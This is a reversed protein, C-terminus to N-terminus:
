KIVAAGAEDREFRLVQGAAAMGLIVPSHTACLVQATCLSSLSQFLLEVAAPHIGNEPEEILYIGELNPIYALLTLALLRLTGASVSWSPAEFGNAYKLVLYRHRDEPRERTAISELDALATRLHGVWAAHREPSDRELQEVVWPLNSGDPLFARTEGPPSPHRLAESNLAIRQVGEMLTRKAWTAVPFMAEDEPLNGLASKTSGLRFLNRWGSTESFFYDNGSDTVKNVVKRGGAPTRGGAGALITDPPQESQPFLGVQLEPATASPRPLLWLSEALLGFDTSNGRRGVAVEYRCTTANGNPIFQQRDAPIALEVALEFSTGQGMWILQELHTARRPVGARVDGLVASCAGARLLDGFFGVVDLFTSKGSANPGVLVQFREVDQAVNRLVRYRLAEVRSIV